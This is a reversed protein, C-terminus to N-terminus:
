THGNVNTHHQQQQSNSRQNDQSTNRKRAMNPTYSSANGGGGICSSITAISHGGQGKRQRISASGDSNNSILNASLNRKGIEHNVKAEISRLDLLETRHHTLHTHGDQGTTSVDTQLLVTPQFIGSTFRVIRDSEM